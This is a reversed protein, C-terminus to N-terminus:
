EASAPPPEEVLVIVGTGILSAATAEDLEVLDGDVYRTGNYDLNDLVRYTALPLSPKKAM